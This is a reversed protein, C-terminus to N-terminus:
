TMRGTGDAFGGAQPRLGRGLVGGGKGISGPVDERPTDTLGEAGALARRHSGPRGAARHLGAGRGGRGLRLQADCDRARRSCMGRASGRCVRRLAHAPRLVDAWDYHEGTQNRPVRGTFQVLERYPELKEASLAVPGVVRFEFDRSGLARAAELLYPVGKQLSVNGLYLVRLRGGRSRKRSAPDMVAVEFGYPIVEIRQEPVGADLLSRKVFASPAFITDALDFEEAQREEYLRLDQSRGLAWGRWREHEERMIRESTAVTASAQDLLTTMGSRRAYRFLEPCASSYGFVATASALDSAIAFRTLAKALAADGRATSGGPIPLKRQLLARLTVSWADRVKGDPLEARRSELVRAGDVNGASLATALRTKWSGKRAYADTYLGHLMGAGHLARATLYHNRAGLQVVGVSVPKTM